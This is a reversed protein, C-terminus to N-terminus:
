SAPPPQSAHHEPPSWELVRELVRVPPKMLAELLPKESHHGNWYDMADDYTHPFVIQGQMLEMDLEVAEAAEVRWVWYPPPCTPGAPYRQMFAVADELRRTGFVSQFRSPMHPFHGSRMAEFFHEGVFNPDMPAVYRSGFYSLARFKEQFVKSQGARTEVIYPGTGLTRGVALQRGRDVHFYEPM